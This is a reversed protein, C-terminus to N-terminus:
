PEMQLPDLQSRRLTLTELFFNRWWRGTPCVSPSRPIGITWSPSAGPAGPLALPAYKVNRYEELTIRGDSDSDYMHFLVTPLLPPLLGNPLPLRPAQTGKEGPDQESASPSPRSWLAKSCFPM